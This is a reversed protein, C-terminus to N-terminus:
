TTPYSDTCCICITRKGDRYEPTATPSWAACNRNICEQDSTTSKWKSNNSSIICQIWCTNFVSSEFHQTQATPTGRHDHQRCGFPKESMKWSTSPWETPTGTSQHDWPSRSPPQYTEALQQTGQYPCSGPLYADFQYTLLSNSPEATRQAQEQNSLGADMQDQWFGPQHQERPPQSPRPRTEAQRQHSYRDINGWRGWIGCHVWNFNPCDQELAEIVQLAPPLEGIIQLGDPRAAQGLHESLLNCEYNFHCTYRCYTCPDERSTQRPKRAPTAQERNEPNTPTYGHLVGGFGEYPPLAYYLPEGGPPPSTLPAM